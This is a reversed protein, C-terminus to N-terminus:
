FDDIGQFAKNFKSREENVLNCLDEEVNVDCTSDIFEAEERFWIFPNKGKWILEILADLSFLNVEESVDAGYENVYYRRLCILDAEMSYVLGTVQETPVIVGVKQPKKKSSKGM